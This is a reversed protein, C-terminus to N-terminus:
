LLTLLRGSHQFFLKSVHLTYERLEDDEKAANNLVGPVLDNLIPAIKQPSQRTVAAVLQVTTRREEINAQLGPIIITKVLDDFVQQQAGPLFQSLTLITRKRVAVRAHGLLPLLVAVPQPDLDPNSLYKPFRSILISLISLTEISTEPPTSDSQLQKLLKPTLKACLNPALKSDQPLEAAITKLAIVRLNTFINHRSIRYIRKGLGAIDRLEDDKSGSFDILRVVIFEMQSERVIKILTGLSLMRTLVTCRAALSVDLVWWKVAQNKVESIKDEVLKLVQSLVKHETNEDGVFNNPDQRIEAMLDTLGM